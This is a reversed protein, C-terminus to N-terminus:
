DTQVLAVLDKDENREPGGSLHLPNLVEDTEGTGCREM